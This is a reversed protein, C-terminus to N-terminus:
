LGGETKAIVLGLHVYRQVNKLNHVVQSFRHFHVPGLVGRIVKRGSGKDSERTAGGM